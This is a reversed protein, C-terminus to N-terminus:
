YAPIQNNKVTKIIGNREIFTDKYIKKKKPINLEKRKLAKKLAGNRGRRAYEEKSLKNFNQNERYEKTKWLEKLRSSIASRRKIEAIQDKSCLRPASVAQNLMSENTVVKLRSLIKSEHLRADEYTEFKRRLKFEFNDIGEEKIMRKVLKSSSFYSSGIDVIDSKRVGYYIRGTPLHLISYTYAKM